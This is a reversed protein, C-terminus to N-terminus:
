SIARLDPDLLLFVVAEVLVSIPDRIAVELGLVGGHRARVPAPHLSINDYM